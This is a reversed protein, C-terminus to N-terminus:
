LEDNYQFPNVKTSILYGVHRLTGMPITGDSEVFGWLIGNVHVPCSLEYCSFDAHTNFREVNAGRAEQTREEYHPEEGGTIYVVVFPPNTATGYQWVSIKESGGYQVLIQDIVEPDVYQIRFDKGSFVEAMTTIAWNSLDDSNQVVFWITLFPLSFYLLKRLQPSTLSTFWNLLPIGSDVSETSINQHFQEEAEQKPKRKM